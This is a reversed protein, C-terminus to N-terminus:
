PEEPGDAPALDIAIYRFGVARLEGSLDPSLLTAEQAEGRPSLLLVEGDIGAAEAGCGDLGRRHLVEEVLALRDPMEVRTVRSM